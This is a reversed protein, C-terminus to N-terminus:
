NLFATGSSPFLFVFSLSALASVDSLESVGERKFPISVARNWRLAPAQGGGHGPCDFVGGWRFSILVGNEIARARWLGFLCRAWGQLEPDGSGSRRLIQRDQM